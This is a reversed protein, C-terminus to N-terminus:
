SGDENVTQLQPHKAKMDARLLRTIRTRAGAILAAAEDYRKDSMTRQAARIAEKIELLQQAENNTM